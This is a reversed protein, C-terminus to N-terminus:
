FKGEHSYPLDPCRAPAAALDAAALHIGEFLPSPHAARVEAHAAQLAGLDTEDPRRALVAVFDLDSGPFFEGGFGLSGHLYLGTVLGPAREDITTLFMGAIDPVAKPLLM